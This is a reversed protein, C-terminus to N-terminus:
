MLDDSFAKGNWADSSGQGASFFVLMNDRVQFSNSHRWSENVLVEEASLIGDENADITMQMLGKKSSEQRKGERIYQAIADEM